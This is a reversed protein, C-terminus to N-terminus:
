AGKYWPISRLRISRLLFFHSRLYSEFGRRLNCDGSEDYRSKGAVCSFDIAVPIEVGSVSKRLIRQFRELRLDATCIWYM